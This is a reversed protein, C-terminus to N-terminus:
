PYPRRSTWPQNQTKIKGNNKQWQEWKPLATSNRERRGRGHRVNGEAGGERRRDGAARRRDGAARRRIVSMGGWRRARRLQCVIGWAGDRLAPKVDDAWQGLVAEDSSSLNLNESPTQGRGKPRGFMRGQQFRAVKGVERRSPGEGITCCTSSLLAARKTGGHAVGVRAHQRHVDPAAVVYRVACHAVEDYVAERVLVRHERVAQGGHRLEHPADVRTHAPARLCPSRARRRTSESTSYEEVFSCPCHISSSFRLKRSTPQCVTAIQSPTKPPLRHQLAQQREAPLPHSM